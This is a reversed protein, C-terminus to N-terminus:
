NQIIHNRLRLSKTVVFEGADVAYPRSSDNSDVKVILVKFPSSLTLGITKPTPKVIQLIQNAVDEIDERSVTAKLRQKIDITITTEVAFHSKSSKDQDTQDMFLIYVEDSKPDEVKGDYVPVDNGDITINGNLATYYARRLQTGSDRM